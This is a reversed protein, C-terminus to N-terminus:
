GSASMYASRVEAKRTAPPTRRNMRTKKIRTKAEKPSLSVPGPTKAAKMLSKAVDRNRRRIRTLKKIRELDGVPSGLGIPKGM